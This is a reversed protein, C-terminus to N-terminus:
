EKEFWVALNIRADVSDPDAAVAREYCARADDLQRLGGYQRGLMGLLTANNPALEMVQRYAQNALDFDLEGMAANGLEFWLEAVVPFRSTLKKYSALAPGHQGGLLQERAKRWLAMDRPSRQLRVQAGHMNPPM